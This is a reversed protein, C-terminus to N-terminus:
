KKFSNAWNHLFITNLGKSSKNYFITKQQIKLLDNEIELRAKIDISNTQATLSYCFLYFFFLFLLQKQKLNFIFFFENFM